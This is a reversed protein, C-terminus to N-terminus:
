KNNQMETKKCKQKDVNNDRQTERQRHKEREISDKQM